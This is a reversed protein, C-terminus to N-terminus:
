DRPSPSTYLLCGYSKCVDQMHATTQLGSTLAAFTLMTTAISTPRLYTNTTYRQQPKMTTPAYQDEQPEQNEQPEHDEQPEQDYQEAEQTLFKTASKTAAKFLGKAVAGAVKNM